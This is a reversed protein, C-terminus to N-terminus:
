LIALVTKIVPRYYFRTYVLCFNGSEKSISLGVVTLVSKIIEMM